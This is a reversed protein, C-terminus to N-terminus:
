IGLRERWTKKKPPPPPGSEIASAEQREKERMAENHAKQEALFEKAKAREAADQTRQLQEALATSARALVKATNLTERAAQERAQVSAASEPEVRAVPEALVKEAILRPSAIFPQAESAYEGCWDGGAVMPFGHVPIPPAKHCTRNNSQWYICTACTSM